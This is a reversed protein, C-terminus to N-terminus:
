AICPRLLISQDKKNNKGTHGIDQGTTRVVKIELGERFEGSVARDASIGPVKTLLEAAKQPHAVPSSLRCNRSSTSGGFVDLFLREGFLSGVIALTSTTRELLIKNNRFIYNPAFWTVRSTSLVGWMSQLQCTTELCTFPKNVTNEYVMLWVNNPPFQDISTSWNWTM